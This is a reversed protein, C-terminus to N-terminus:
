PLAIVIAWAISMIIAMMYRANLGNEVVKDGELSMQPNIISSIIALILMVAMFMGLAAFIFKLIGILWLM